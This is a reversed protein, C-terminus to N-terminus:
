GVTNAIEFVPLLIAIVIGGVVIAVLLILLPELVAMLSDVMYMVERDFYEALKMLMEDLAGIEEGVAIMQVVMPEFVGTAQLPISIPDGEKISDRAAGVAQSIVANGAVERVVELAQLIPIGSKVLVGMTRAFRAVALRSVTQGAIPLHLYLNDCFYRGAPTKRIRRIVYVLTIILSLLYYWDHLFFTSVALIFRTPMPLAIGTDMFMDVFTPMIFVSIGAVMIIALGLTIVPYISASKIRANIEQERELHQSLRELLPDMVGGLEGARVMNIYIPSFIDPHQALAQWLALGGGIDERVKELALKLKQNVAQEALIDFAHLIPLGAALMTALQRTMAVLDRIRVRQFATPWSVPSRSVNSQRLSLIYYERSLLSTIVSNKDEADLRGKRINGQRDRVKYAFELTM